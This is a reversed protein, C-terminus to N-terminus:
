QKPAMSETLKQLPLQQSGAPAVCQFDWDTKTKDTINGKLKWGTDILDINLRQFDGQKWQNYRIQAVPTTDGIILKKLKNNKYHWHWQPISEEKGLFLKHIHEARLQDASLQAFEAPTGEYYQNDFDFLFCVKERTYSFSILPLGAPRTLRFHVEGAEGLYIEGPLKGGFSFGAINFKGSIQTAPVATALGLFLLFFAIM